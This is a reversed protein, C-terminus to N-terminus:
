TFLYRTFLATSYVPCQNVTNDFTITHGDGNFVSSNSVGDQLGIPKWVVSNDITIDATLLVKHATNVNNAFWMLQGLNGIHYVGDVLEAAEYGGCLTCFGNSDETFSHEHYFEANADNSYIFEGYHTCGSNYIKYVKAGGLVPLTEKTEGNDINQGWIDTQQNGQLLYAIEGSAFREDSINEGCGNIQGGSQTGAVRAAHTYCNVVQGIRDSTNIDGRTDSVLNGCRSHGSVAVNYTYCNSITGAYNCAAVGGVIYNNPTLTSNIVHCNEITTGDLM